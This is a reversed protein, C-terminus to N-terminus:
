WGLELSTWSKIGCASFHADFEVRENNLLERGSRDVLIVNLNAIASFLSSHNEFCPRCLNALLSGTVVEDEVTVLQTPTALVNLTFDMNRGIQVCVFTTRRTSSGVGEAYDDPFGLHKIQRQDSSIEILLNLHTWLDQFADTLQKLM